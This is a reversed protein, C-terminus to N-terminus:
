SQVDSVLAWAWAWGGVITRKVRQGCCGGLTLRVLNLLALYYESFNYFNWSINM